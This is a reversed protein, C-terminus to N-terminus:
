RPVSLLACAQVSPLVTSVSFGSPNLTIREGDKTSTRDPSFWYALRGAGAAAGAIQLLVGQALRFGAEETLDLNVLHVDLKREPDVYGRALLAGRGQLSLTRQSRGLLERQAIGLPGDLETERPLTGELPLGYVRGGGVRELGLKSEPFLPAIRRGEEDVRDCPGVLLLDGGQEIHRRIPGALEDPLESAGALAVLRAGGARAPEDIRVAFQLQARQLAAALVGSARLHAGQSAHDARPLVLLDLDALPATPRFRERVLALYRRQAALAAKSEIAAGPQLMLDCGCAAALAGFLRVQDPRAQPPLQAIAARNGMAARVALLPLLADMPELTQLQFVLGDLHRCLLLALPSLPGVRALVPLELGRRARAEDRAAQIAAKAARLPLELRLAERLGGYPRQPPLLGSERQLSLAGFPEVHDGYAAQLGENLARECHSCYGAGQAGLRYWRDLGDLLAAEGRRASLAAAARTEAQSAEHNPCRVAVAGGARNEDEDLCAEEPNKARSLEVWAARPLRGEGLGPLIAKGPPAPPADELSAADVVIAQAEEARGALDGAEVPGQAEPVSLALFRSKPFPIVAM